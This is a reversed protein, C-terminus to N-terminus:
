LSQVSRKNSRECTQVPYRSLLHACPSGDRVRAGDRVGSDGDYAPMWVRAPIKMIADGIDEAITFGVSYALKRGPSTLWTLFEHGGGGSDARVQVARAGAGAPSGFGAQHRRHSRQRHELRRQRRLMIAPPEGNGSAVHDAFVTLPHFGFTKKWTPAAQRKDSHATVLRADIGATILAGGSGPAAPGARAWARQRAGARATRASCARSPACRVSM